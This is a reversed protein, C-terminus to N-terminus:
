LWGTTSFSENYGSVSSTDDDEDDTGSFTSGPGPGGPGAAGLGTGGTGGMGGIVATPSFPAPTRSGGPVVTVGIKPASSNLYETEASTMPDTNLFEAGWPKAVFPRDMSTSIPGPRTEIMRVGQLPRGSKIQSLLEPSYSDTNFLEGGQFMPRGTFPKDMKTGIPGPLTAGRRPRDGAPVTGPAAGTPSAPSFDDPRRMSLPMGLTHGMGLTSPSGGPVGGPDSVEALGGTNTTEFLAAQTLPGAIADLKGGVWGPQKEEASRQFALVAAATKPGYKGDLGGPNFGAAALQSQVGLVDEGQSGLRLRRYEAATEPGGTLGPPRTRPTPLAVERNPRPVPHPAGPRISLGAPHPAPAVGGRTDPGRGPSGLTREIEPAPASAIDFRSDTVPTTGQTNSTMDGVDPRPRPLINNPTTLAAFFEPSTRGGEGALGMQDAQFRMVADRGTYGLDALMQKAEQVTPYKPPGTEVGAKYGPETRAAVATPTMFKSLATRTNPGLINDVGGAEPHDAQFQAVADAGEYGLEELAKRYPDGMGVSVERYRKPVGWIPEGRSNRGLGYEWSGNAMAQGAGPTIDVHMQDFAVDGFYGGYRIVNSLDPYDQDVIGKIAQAYQEYQRFTGPNRFHDLDEGTVPDSLIFDLAWGGPHNPTERSRANRGGHPSVRVNYGFPEAARKAADVLRPDVKDINASKPASFTGGLLTDRGEGGQISSMEIPAYDEGTWYPDPPPNNEDYTHEFPLTKGTNPDKRLGYSNAGHEYDQIIQDAWQEIRPDMEGQNFQTSLDRAIQGKTQWQGDIFYRVEAMSLVGLLLLTACLM